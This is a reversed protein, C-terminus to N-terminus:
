RGVPQPRSGFRQMDKDFSGDAFGAKVEQRIMIRIQQKGDAGTSRQAEVKAGQVQNIVQIDIPVSVQTGQGTSGASAMAGAFKMTVPITRGDPLPVFAESQAGEGFIAMQPRTTVGGSAYREMPMIGGFRQPVVNVTDTPILGPSEGGGGGSGFFGSLASAGPKIIGVTMMQAMMQSVIQKTFDLVGQLVDKFGKFKGEMGDFFFKQFGQEMGQAARRAMDSAMDFGTESKKVYGQMGRAWGDFFSGNAREAALIDKANFSEVTGEVYNRNLTPDGRVAIDRAGEIDGSKRLFLIRDAEDHTLRLKFALQDRLLVREKVAMEQDSAYRAVGMDVEGQYYTQLGDLDQQRLSEKIEYDSKFQAVLRQGLREQVAGRAIANEETSQTSSIGFAQTNSKIAQNIDFVKSKYREEEEIREETSKFGIEVRQAHFQDELEKERSLMQGTAALERLRLTGKMSVLDEQTVLQRQADFEFLRGAAALGTKTQDLDAQMGKERRERQADLQKGRFDPALTTGLSPDFRPDKDIVAKDIGPPPPLIRLNRSEGERRIVGIQPPDLKNPMMFNAAARGGAVLDEIIKQLIDSTATLKPILATGIDTGLGSLTEKLRTTSKNWADTQAVVKSDLTIGLREAEKTQSLLADKGARAMDQMQDGLLKSIVTSKAGDDNFMQLRDVVDLFVDGTGRLHGGTDTVSVGLAKFLRAGDGTGSVMEIMNKNLTSLGGSLGQVSTDNLRAAYAFASAERTALSSHQSLNKIESVYKAASNATDFLAKGVVGLGGVIGGALIARASFTELFDTNLGHASGRIDDIAKKVVAAGREADRPEIKVGLVTEM